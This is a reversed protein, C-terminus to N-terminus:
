NPLSSHSVKMMNSNFKVCKNCHFQETACTAMENRATFMKGRYMFSLKIIKIARTAEPLIDFVLNSMM